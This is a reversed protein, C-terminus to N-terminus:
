TPDGLAHANMTAAVSYDGPTTRTLQTMLAHARALDWVTDVSLSVPPWHRAAFDPQGELRPDEYMGLTVHERHGGSDPYRRNMLM